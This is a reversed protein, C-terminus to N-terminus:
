TIIITMVTESSRNELARIIDTFIEENHFNPPTTAEESYKGETTTSMFASNESLKSLSEMTTAKETTTPGFLSDESLELFPELAFRPQLTTTTPSETFDLLFRSPTSEEETQITSAPRYVPGDKSRLKASDSIDYRMTIPQFLQQLDFERMAIRDITDSRSETTTKEMTTRDENVSDNIETLFDTETTERPTSGTKGTTSFELDGEDSMRLYFDRETVDRPWSTTSRETTTFLINLSESKLTSGNQETAEGPWVPKTKSGTDSDSFDASETRGVLDSSTTGTPAARTTTEATWLGSDLFNDYEKLTTEKVANETTTKTARVTTSSDLAEFVSSFIDQTTSEAQTTTASKETTAKILEDSFSYLKGKRESNQANLSSSETTETSVSPQTTSEIKNETFRFIPTETSVDNMETQHNTYHITSSVPVSFLFEDESTTTMTTTTASDTLMSNLKEDKKEEDEIDNGIFEFMSDPSEFETETVGTFIDKTTGGTETKIMTTTEHKKATTTPKTSTTVSVTSVTTRTETTTSERETSSSRGQVDNIENESTLYEDNIVTGNPFKKVITNNPYIGFIVYPSRYREYDFAKWARRRVVTNNPYVGFVFYDATTSTTSETSSAVRDSEESSALQKSVSESSSYDFYLYQSSCNRKNECTSAKTTAPSTTLTSATETVPTLTPSIKTTTTTPMATTTNGIATSTTLATTTAPPIADLETTTTPQTVETEQSTEPTLANLAVRPVIQINSPTGTHNNIVKMTENIYSEITMISELSPTTTSTTAAANSDTAQLKVPKKRSTNRKTTTEIGGFLSILNRLIPRNNLANLASETTTSQNKQNKNQPKKKATMSKTTNTLTQSSTSSNVTATSPRATTTTLPSDTKNTPVFFSAPFSNNFLAM